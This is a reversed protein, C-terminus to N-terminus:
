RANSNKKNGNRSHFTIEFHALIRPNKPRPYFKGPSFIFHKDQAYSRTQVIVLNKMYNVCM